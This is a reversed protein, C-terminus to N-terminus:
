QASTDPWADEEAADAFDHSFLEAYTEIQENAAENAAQVIDDDLVPGLEPPAADLTKPGSAPAMTGEGRIRPRYNLSLRRM